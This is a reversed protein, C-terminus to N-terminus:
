LSRRGTLYEMLHFGRGVQLAGRSASAEDYREVADRPIGTGWLVFPVPESSHTRLQIPTRHDPTMLLRHPGLAPLEERLPGAILRDIDELAQIKARVDGHHAAEDPAEVHIYVLDVERLADLAARAKGAYNTDLYGTIGQVHLVQLGAAIGIGRVLDVASIVAGHLGFRDHLSPLRPAEGSGWLWIANATLQGAAARRQNVEARELVPGAADMLGRVWEQGPGAPLHEQISQGMLDHPPHTILERPGEQCVLLHRYQVGPYLRVRADDLVAALQGILDHGEETSIHGASYDVLTDGDRHILNCRFAVAGAELDVGMSAAELSARGIRHRVADYGLVELNGIDSGPPRDPPIVAVLGNTGAAALRDMNPTSAAQLPTRGDLGDQPYDAAGDPVLVVYKM